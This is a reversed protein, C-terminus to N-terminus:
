EIFAYEQRIRSHVSVKDICTKVMRETSYRIWKENVKDRHLYAYTDSILLDVEYIFSLVKEVDRNAESDTFPIEQAKMFLERVKIYVSDVYKALENLAYDRSNTLTKIGEFLSTIEDVLEFARSFAEERSMEENLYMLRHSHYSNNWRIRYRSTSDWVGRCIWNTHTIDLDDFYFFTWIRARQGYKILLTEYMSCIQRYLSNNDFYVSSVKYKAVIKNINDGINDDYIKCKNSEAQTITIDESVYEEGGSSYLMDVSIGRAHLRQRMSDKITAPIFIKEVILSDVDVNGVPILKGNEFGFGFIIGTGGQHFARNNSYVFDKYDIVYNRTLIDSFSDTAVENLQSDGTLV